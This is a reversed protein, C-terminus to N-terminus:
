KPCGLATKQAADTVKACAALKKTQAVKGALRQDVIAQLAQDVTQPATTATVGVRPQKALEAAAAEQEATLNVTHPGALAYSILLAGLAASLVAAWGVQRQTLMM